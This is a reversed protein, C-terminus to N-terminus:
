CDTAIVGDGGTAAPRQQNFDTNEIKERFTKNIASEQKFQNILEDFKTAMEDHQTFSEQLTSVEGAITEVAQHVDSFQANQQKDSKSFMAKVKQLLSPENPADSDNFELDAELAASFLNNPNLKRVTFPNVEATSSFQLLETSLSAPSDTLALGVLYAEQKGAFDPQIEVSTFLKQGQENLSLLRSNPNIQAFLALRQQGDVDIEETKLNLVKGYNGFDSNPGYGRMHEVNILATYKDPNYTTAMDELWKREIERGDTTDGEVAIRFYKSKLM